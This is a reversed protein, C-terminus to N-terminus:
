TGPQATGVTDEGRHIDDAHPVTASGEVRECLWALWAARLLTRGAATLQALVFLTLSGSPNTGLWLRPAFSLLVLLASVLVFGGRVSCVRLDVSRLLERGLPEGKALALQGRDVLSPAHVLAAIAFPLACVLGTTQQLRVNHSGALLLECGRGVFFAANALLAAYAAGLGYVVCAQKYVQAASRAHEHLAGPRLQARLWLVQLFPTVVLLAFAPIGGFRLPSKTLVDFVRIATYLVAVAPQEALDQEPVSAAVPVVLAAACLSNVAHIMLTTKLARAARARPGSTAERISAWWSM